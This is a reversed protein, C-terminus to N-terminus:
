HLLQPLWACRCIGTVLLPAGCAGKQSVTRCCSCVGMGIQLQSVSASCVQPMRRPQPRTQMPKAARAATQQTSAQEAAAAKPMALGPPAACM